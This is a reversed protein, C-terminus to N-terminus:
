TTHPMYIQYFVLTTPHDEQAPLYSQQLGHEARVLPLYQRATQLLETRCQPQIRAEIFMIVTENTMNSQEERNENASPEGGAGVLATDVRKRSDAGSKGLLRYKM